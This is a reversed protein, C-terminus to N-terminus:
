TLRLAAVAEDLTAAEDEEDGDVEICTTQDMRPPVGGGAVVAAQKAERFRKGLEGMLEKHTAAPRAARLTSFHEKVFVAFASPERPKFPTGDRNFAGLLQLRGGCHPCSARDVDVSKSQRGVEYGCGALCGYRFKYFIEYSHCTTIELDAYLGEFRRAWKKFKPGHPPKQERDLALQGAHCMEHALTRRLKRETDLVKESLQIELVQGDRSVCRGATTQLKANWTIPLDAPLAGGFVRQNYEAYLTPTLEILVRRTAAWSPTRASSTPTTIAGRAAWEGGTPTGKPARKPTAKPTTAAAAPVTPPARASLPAVNEDIEDSFSLSEVVLAGRMATSPMAGSGSVPTRHGARRLPTWGSATADPSSESGSAAADLGASLANKSPAPNPSPNPSVESVDSEDGEDSEDSEEGDDASGDGSESAVYDDDEGEGEEEEGEEEEVIFDDLDSGADSGDSSRGGGAESYNPSRFPDRSVRRKAVRPQPSAESENGAADDNGSAKDSGGGEDSEDDSVAVRRASWPSAAVPRMAAVPRASQVAAEAEEEEEEDDDLVRRWRAAHGKSRSPAVKADSGVSSPREGAPSPPTPEATTASRPGSASGDSASTLSIVAPSAEEDPMAGDPVAGLPTEELRKVEVELGGVVVSIGTVVAGTPSGMADDSPFADDFATHAGDDEDDAAAWSPSASRVAGDIGASAMMVEVPREATDEEEEDDDYESGAPVVEREELVGFVRAHSEETLAPVLAPRRGDTPSSNEKDENEDGYVSEEDDDDLTLSSYARLDLSVGMPTAPVGLPETRTPPSVQVTATGAAERSGRLQARLRLNDERLATVLEALEDARRADKRLTANELQLAAAARKYEDCREALSDLSEQESTARTVDENSRRPQLPGFPSSRFVPINKHTARSSSPPTPHAGLACRSKPM